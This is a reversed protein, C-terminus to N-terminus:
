EGECRIGGRENCRMCDREEGRTTNPDTEDDDEDDGSSVDHVEQSCPSWEERPARRERFQRRRREERRRRWRKERLDLAKDVLDDHQMRIERLRLAVAREEINEQLQLIQKALVCLEAEHGHTKNDERMIFRRVAALRTNIEDEMEEEAGPGLKALITSRRMKDAEMYKATTLDELFDIIKRKNGAERERQKEVRARRERPEVPTSSARRRLPARLPEGGGGIPSAERFQWSKTLYERAKKYVNSLADFPIDGSGVFTTRSYHRRGHSRLQM